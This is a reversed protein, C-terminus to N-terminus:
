ISRSVDHSMDVIFNRTVHFGTSETRTNFISNEKVGTETLNNTVVDADYSEITRYLSSNDVFNKNFDKSHMHCFRCPYCATFGEAFGM